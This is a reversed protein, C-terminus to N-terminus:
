LTAMLASRAAKKGEPVHVCTTAVKSASLLVTVKKRLPSRCVDVTTTGTPPLAV